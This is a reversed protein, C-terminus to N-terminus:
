GVARFSRGDFTLFSHLDDAPFTLAPGSCDQTGYVEVSRTSLNLESHVTFPLATCATGPTYSVSPGTFAGSYFTLDGGPAASAPAVGAGLALGVGAAVAAIGSVVTATRSRM